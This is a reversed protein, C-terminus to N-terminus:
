RFPNGGDVATSTFYTDAGPFDRRSLAPLAGTRNPTGKKPKNARGTPDQGLSVSNTAGGPRTV